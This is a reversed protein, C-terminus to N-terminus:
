ENEMTLPETAANVADDGGGGFFGSISMTGHAASAMKADHHQQQKEEASMASVSSNAKSKNKGNDEGDRRPFDDRLFELLDNSQVMHIFDKELIQKGGRMAATQAGRISMYAVFMETAKAVLATAEKSVNKVEPDMKITRKVRALPLLLENNTPLNSFKLGQVNENSGEMARSPDELLIQMEKETAEEILQEYKEREQASIEQFGEKVEETMNNWEHSIKQALEKFTLKEEGGSLERRRRTAFVFYASNPRKIEKRSAARKKAIKRLKESSPGTPAAQAESDEAVDGREIQYMIPWSEKREMLEKEEEEDLFSKGSRISHNDGDGYSDVIMETNEQRLQGLMEDEEEDDGEELDDAGEDMKRLREREEEEFDVLDEEKEEMEIDDESSGAKGDAEIESKRKSM